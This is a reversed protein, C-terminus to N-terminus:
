YMWPPTYNKFFYEFILEWERIYARAKSDSGTSQSSVALTYFIASACDRSTYGKCSFRVSRVRRTYPLHTIKSFFFGFNRNGWTDAVSFEWERTYARAKSDSRTPQSSVAFTYFTASACDQSTYSKCSFRASCLRRSHVAPM